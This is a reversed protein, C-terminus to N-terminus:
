AGSAVPGACDRAPLTFVAELGGQPRNYLRIDGGHARALNRAIALGLGSGGRSRHRSSEVRYFPEFVKELLEPPVGPGDDRVCITAGGASESMHISAAGSFAVANGVLNQLVREVARLAARYPQALRGQVTVAHGLDLMGEAVSEVLTGLDVPVQAERLHGSRAFDLQEQLMATVTDLDAAFRERLTTDTILDARLRLRTIPTQLDHSIAAALAATEEAHRQRLDHFGNVAQALEGIVRPELRAPEPACAGEGPRRLARLIPGLRQALLLSLLWIFLANALLLVVFGANALPWAEYAAGAQWGLAFTLGHIALACAALAAATRACGARPARANV